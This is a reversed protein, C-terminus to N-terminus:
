GPFCSSRPWQRITKKDITARAIVAGRTLPLRSQGIPRVTALPLRRHDGAFQIITSNQAECLRAASAAIEAFVRYPDTPSNSIAALIQATAAQQERAVALERRLEEASQHRVTSVEVAM